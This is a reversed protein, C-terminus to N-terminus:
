SSDLSFLDGRRTAPKVVRRTDSPVSTRATPRRHTMSYPKSVLWCSTRKSSYSTGGVRRPIAGHRQDEISVGEGTLGAAPHQPWDSREGCVLGGPVTLGDLTRELGTLLGVRFLDRRLTRGGAHAPLRWRGRLGFGAPPYQPSRRTVLGAVAGFTGCVSVKRPPCLFEIVASHETRAVIHANGGIGLDRPDDLEEITSHRFM